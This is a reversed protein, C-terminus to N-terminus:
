PNKGTLLVSEGGTANRTGPNLVLTKGIGTIPVSEKAPCGAPPWVAAQSDPDPLALLKAALERYTM